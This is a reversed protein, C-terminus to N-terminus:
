TAKILLHLVNTNVFKQSVKHVVASFESNGLQWTLDSRTDVEVIIPRRVIGLVKTWSENIMWPQWHCTKGQSFLLSVGCWRNKNEASRLWKEPRRKKHTKSASRNTILVFCFNNEEGVEPVVFRSLPHGPFLLFNGEFHVYATPFFISVEAAFDTGSAM